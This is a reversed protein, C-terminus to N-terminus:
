QRQLFDDIGGARAVAKGATEEAIEGRLAFEGGGGEAAGHEVAAYHAGERDLAKAGLANLREGALLDVLAEDEEALQRVKVSREMERASHSATRAEQEAAEKTAIRHLQCFSAM